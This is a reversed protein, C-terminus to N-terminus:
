DNCREGNKDLSRINWYDKVEKPTPFSLGLNTMRLYLRLMTLRSPRASDSKYNIKEGEVLLNFKIHSLWGYFRNMHWFEVSGIPTNLTVYAEPNSYTTSINTQKLIRKFSTDVIPSYSYNMSGFLIATIDKIKM